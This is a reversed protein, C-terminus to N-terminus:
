SIVYIKGDTFMRKEEKWRAPGKIQPLAENMLNVNIPLPADQIYNVGRKDRSPRYHRRYSDDSDEDSLEDESYEASDIYNDDESDKASDSRTRYSSDESDSPEQKNPNIDGQIRVTFKNKNLENLNQEQEDFLAKRKLFQNELDNYESELKLKQVRMDSVYKEEQYRYSARVLVSHTTLRSTIEEILQDAKDITLKKLVSSIEVKIREHDWFWTAMETKEKIDLLNWQYLLKRREETIEAKLSSEDWILQFQEDIKNNKLQDLIYSKQEITLSESSPFCDLFITEFLKSEYYPEKGLAKYIEAKIQEADLNSNWGHTVAEDAESIKLKEFLGKQKEM